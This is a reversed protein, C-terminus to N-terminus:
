NLPRYGLVRVRGPSTEIEFGIAVCLQGLDELTLSRGDDRPTLDCWEIYKYEALRFRYSWDVDWGDDPPYVAGETNQFRWYPAARGLETMVVQLESWTAADALDLFQRHQHGPQDPQHASM